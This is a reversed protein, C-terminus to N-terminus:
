HKVLIWFVDLTEFSPNLDFSQLINYTISILPNVCSDGVRFRSQNLNFIINELFFNYIANYILKEFIKGCLPLVSIPVVPIKKDSFFSKLISWYAKSSTKPNSLKNRLRTYYAAKSESVLLNLSQYAENM